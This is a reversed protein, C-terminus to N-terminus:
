LKSEKFRDDLTAPLKKAEIFEITQLLMGLAAAAHFLVPLGSEPDKENREKWETVHRLVSDALDCLPLGTNLYNGKAYKTCGFAFAQAAGYTLANPVLTLPPKGKSFKVSKKVVDEHASTVPKACCALADNRFKWFGKCNGCLWGGGQQVPEVGIRDAPEGDYDPCNPKHMDFNHQHKFTRGCLCTFQKVTESKVGLFARRVNGNANTMADGRDLRRDRGRDDLSYAARGVVAGENSALVL